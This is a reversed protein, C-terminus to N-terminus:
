GQLFSGEQGGAGGRGGFARQSLVPLLPAASLTGPPIAGGINERQVLDSPSRLRRLEATLRSRTGKAHVSPKRRWPLLLGTESVSTLSPSRCRKKAMAQDGKKAQGKVSSQKPIEQVAVRMMQAFQAQSVLAVQPPSPSEESSNFPGGSGGEGEAVGTSAYRRAFIASFKCHETCAHSRQEPDTLSRVSSDMQM